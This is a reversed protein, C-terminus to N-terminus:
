LDLARAVAARSTIGLKAYVRTLHAEVTRVSLFLRDAIVQNTVGETVLLAVQRERESLAAARGEATPARGARGPADLRERLWHAGCETFLKRAAAREADARAAWDVPSQSPGGGPGHESVHQAAEAALQHAQGARVPQEAAAHDAAARAASEWASAAAGSALLLRGRALESAARAGLLGSRRAAEEAYAVYRGADEHRSEAVALATAVDCRLPLMPDHTAPDGLALLSEADASTMTEGCEWVTELRALAVVRRWWAVPPEPLAAMGALATLAAQPGRSWLLPRLLMAAALASTEGSGDPESALAAEAAEVAATMPGTASLLCAHVAYLHPLAYRQGRALCLQVARATRDRSEAYRELFFGAWGLEPAAELCRYLQEDDMTDVLSGAEDLRAAATATDCQAVAAMAGLARAVVVVEPPRGAAALNELRGLDPRRSNMLEIRILQLEALANHPATAPAADRAAPVTSRLLTYAREARGAMRDALATLGLAEMQQPGGRALLPRLTAVASGLHGAVTLARGLQLLVEGRTTAAPGDPPLLHLAKRLWRISDEPRSALSVRAAEVLRELTTSDLHPAHEIQDAWRLVSAGRREFHRAARSHAEACWVPGALQYAALHVLPHVFRFMGDSGDLLGRAVLADLARGAERAPLDSVAEVAALDFAVGVVAAAQAAKREATPLAALEPRIVSERYAPEDDRVGPPRSGTALATVLTTPMGAMLLVYLPNGRGAESVARLHQPSVSPLLAAVEQRTLPPLSLRSGGAARLARALPPPCQGSRHTMVLAVPGRPPYRILFELAALSADDAWHVDDLLLVLPRGAAEAGLGSRLLRHRRRQEARDTAEAPEAGDLLRGTETDQLADLLLALPVDRDAASARGDLTVAGAAAARARLQALLRTRGMGHPGDVVAVRTASEPHLVSTLRQLERERGVFPVVSEDSADM